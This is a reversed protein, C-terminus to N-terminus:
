NGIFQFPSTTEESMKKDIIKDNEVTLIYRRFLERHEGVSVREIYIYEQKHPGIEKVEYPRGMLVQVDSIKGGIAITHYSDYSM